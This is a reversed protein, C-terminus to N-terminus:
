QVTQLGTNHWWHAGRSLKPEVDSRHQLKKITPAYASDLLRDIYSTPALIDFLDCFADPDNPNLSKYMDQWLQEHIKPLTVVESLDIPGALSEVVSLIASVDAKVASKVLKRAVSRADKWADGTFAKAFAVSTIINTHIDLTQRLAELENRELKERSDLGM